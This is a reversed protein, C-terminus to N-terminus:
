DCLWNLLNNRKGKQIIVTMEVTTEKSVTTARHFKVDEFVVPLNTYLINNMEGVTEWVLDLYGTAPYLNRGDIIHGEIFEDKDDNLNIEVHNEGTSIKKVFKYYTVYWDKSHDWKILSSIMPTTRSVPYPM